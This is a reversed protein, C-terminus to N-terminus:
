KEESKKWGNRKKDAAWRGTYFTRMSGTANRLCDLHWSRGWPDRNAMALQPMRRGCGACRVKKPKTKVRQIIADAEKQATEVIRTIQEVTQQHPEVTISLGDLKQEIMLGRVFSRLFNAM